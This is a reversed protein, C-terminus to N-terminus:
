QAVENSHVYTIDVEIVFDSAAPQANLVPAPGSQEIVTTEGAPTPPAIVTTETSQGSLVTTETSQGGLVSTEAEQASLVSTEAGTHDDLETTAGGEMHDYREELSMKTTAATEIAVKGSPTQQDYDIKSPAKKQEAKDKKFNRNEIAKRKNSGSLFGIVDKIRFLFFILVTVALMIISLVLGGIFIYQYVEYSM